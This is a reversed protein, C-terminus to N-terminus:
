KNRRIIFFIFLFLGLLFIGGVLKPIQKPSFSESELIDFIVNDEKVIVDEDYISIYAWYQEPDLSHPVEMVIEQKTFPPIYGNFAHNTIQLRKEKFKDMLIVDIRSPKAETNGKNDITLLIKIPSGDEVNPIKIQNISYDIVERDTVGIKVDIPLVVQTSIGIDNSRPKININIKNEYSGLEADLPVDISFILPISQDEKPFIFNKGKDVSIWRGVEGETEIVVDLDENTISKSLFILKEFHSGQLLSSEYIRPPSIGVSISDASTAKGLIILLLLYFIIKKIM